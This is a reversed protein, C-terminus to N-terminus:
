QRWPCTDFPSREIPSTMLISEDSYHIAQHTLRVTSILNEPDMIASDHNELQEVTLPNIHHILLSEYAPRDLCALDCGHDRAIIWNRLSRWEPSHYFRQNLWRYDAFTEVGVSGPIKLYRFREEFTSLKILESYSKLQNTM